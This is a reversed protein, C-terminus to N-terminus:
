EGAYREFNKFQNPNDILGKEPYLSVLYNWMKEVRGVEPRKHGRNKCLCSDFEKPLSIMSKGLYIFDTSILVRDTKGTDRNLNKMNVRGGELSHHSNEQVWGGSENHHYINDGWLKILSGNMVPKKREYQSDSWYKDFSIVASVKMMFILKYDFHVGANGSVFDGVLARKRIEPKCTALTLFGHFPNPAFGYDRAIIYSYANSM